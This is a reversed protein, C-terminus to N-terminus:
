SARGYRCPASPLADDSQKMNHKSTIRNNLNAPLVLGRPPGLVPRSREPKAHGQRRTGDGRTKRQGAAQNDFPSSHGRDARGRAPQTSLSRAPSSGRLRFRSCFNSTLDEGCRAPQADPPLAGPPSSSRPEHCHGGLRGQLALVQNVVGLRHIVNGAASPGGIPFCRVSSHSVEFARVDEIRQKSEAQAWSARRRARTPASTSKRITIAVDEVVPRLARVRM